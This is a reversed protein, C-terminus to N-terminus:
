FSLQLGINFRRNIPYGLGNGGVEPDWLKFSSFHFLNEISLYIRGNQMHIKQIGPLTYGMEVTKLRLFSGNRLWWTSSQINNGILSTSLRPWFAHVDPNTETWAGRAVIAPANRRNEFPAIGQLKGENDYRGPDIFFSVRANGQFFFSMDFKKYGMSLGFGYQLQPSSPYGIPIKDTDDIQGDGNVDLYKIDGAQYDGFAKQSPSHAIELEDVFLREAILGRPQSTPRGVERRYEDTYNPEDKKLVENVAFTFNARGTMWFNANFSHALDISADIGKSSVKGSNGWINREFGSTSPLTKREEYIKDRIDKFIDVQLKLAEGKLLGLELGLNYKTSEEWTMDPNAFSV